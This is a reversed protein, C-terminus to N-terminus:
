FYKILKKNNPDYKNIKKILNTSNFKTKKFIIKKTITDIIAWKALDDGDRPQGVSGPNLVINKKIKKKM